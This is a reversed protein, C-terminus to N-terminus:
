VWMRLVMGLWIRLESGLFVPVLVSFRFGQDACTPNLYRRYRQFRSSEYDRWWRIGAHGKVEKSGQNPTM